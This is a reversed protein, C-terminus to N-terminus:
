GSWARKLCQWCVLKWNLLGAYYNIKNSPGPERWVSGACWSRIWCDQTIILKTALHNTHM